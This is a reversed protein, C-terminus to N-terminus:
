EKIELNTLERGRGKEEFASLDGRQVDGRLLGRIFM